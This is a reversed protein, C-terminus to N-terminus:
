ALRKKGIWGLGAFSVLVFVLAAWTSYDSRLQAVSTIHSFREGLFLAFITRPLMGLLSGLFYPKLPYCAMAFVANMVSFPLAPSLRCFVALWFSSAQLKELIRRIPFREELSGVLKGNDLRRCFFYGWFSALLYSLLVLPLSQWGWLYGGLLSFFTTPMWGMALLFACLPSFLFLQVHSLERLWTQYHLAYGALIGGVLSPALSLYLILFLSGGAKSVLRQFMACALFTESIISKTLLSDNTNKIKSRIEM